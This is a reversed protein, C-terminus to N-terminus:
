LHPCLATAIVSWPTTCAKGSAISATFLMRLDPPSKLAIYPTSAYKTFSRTPATDPLLELLVDSVNITKSTSVVPSEAASSRSVSIPATLTTLPSIVSDNLM